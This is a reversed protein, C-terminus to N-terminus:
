SRRGMALTIASFGFGRDDPAQAVTVTTTAAPYGAEAFVAAVDHETVGASPFRVDGVRYAETARLAAVVLWGQPAVLSAINLMCRRWEDRDATISDPCFCCLVAGYRQRGREGVIPTPCRADAHFFGTIRQRTLNERSEIEIRTPTRGLECRLACAAFASWDHTGPQRTVWRRVADLNSPLYDAVHIEAVRHVFPFLHHVTPGCGFELLESAAGLRDAADVLFAITAREDNEVASYYEQLYRSPQWASDFSACPTPEHGPSGM